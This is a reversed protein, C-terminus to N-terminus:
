TTAGSHWTSGSDISHSWTYALNLTLNHWSQTKLATQLGSYNSNVVNQWNRLRGYNPNLRGNDTGAKEGCLLRGFTDDFCQGAPARGGPLRNIDEARFLKHGATGVYDVEMVVKPVLQHQISAFFNHVYPDRIGEPFIIG